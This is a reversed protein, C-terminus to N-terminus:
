RTPHSTSTVSNRSPMCGWGNRRLCHDEPTPPLVRWARFSLIRSDMACQFRLRARMGGCVRLRARAAGYESLYHQGDDGPLRAGSNTSPPYDLSSPLVSQIRMSRGLPESFSPHHPPNDWSAIRGEVLLTLELLCCLPKRHQCPIVMRLESLSDHAAGAADGAMHAMAETNM